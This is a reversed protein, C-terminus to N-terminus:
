YYGTSNNPIEIMYDYMPLIVCVMTLWVIFLITCWDCHVMLGFNIDHLEDFSM